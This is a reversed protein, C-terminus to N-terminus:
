RLSNSQFAELTLWRRTPSTAPLLLWADTLRSCEFTNVRFRTGSGSPCPLTGIIKQPELSGPAPYKRRVSCAGCGLDLLTVPAIRSRFRRRVISFSPADIQDSVAFDNNKTNVFLTIRPPPTKKGISVLRSFPSGMNM